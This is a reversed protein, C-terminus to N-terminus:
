DHGRRHEKCTSAGSRRRISLRSPRRKVEVLADHGHTPTRSGDGDGVHIMVTLEVDDHGVRHVAGQADQEAIALPVENWRCPRWNCASCARIINSGAVEIAIAIEIKHDGIGFRWVECNQKAVALASKRGRRMRGEICMRIRVNVANGNAVEIGIAFEVRNRIAPSMVLNEHEQAIAPSVQNQRSLM